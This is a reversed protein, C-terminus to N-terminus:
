TLYHQLSQPGQMDKQKETQLSWLALLQFPWFRSQILKKALQTVSDVDIFSVCAKIPQLKSKEM